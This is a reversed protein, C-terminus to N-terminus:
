SDSDPSELSHKSAAVGSTPPATRAGAIHKSEGTEGPMGYQEAMGPAYPDHVIRVGDERRQEGGAFSSAM